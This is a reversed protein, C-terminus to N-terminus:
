ILDESPTRKARVLPNLDSFLRAKISISWRRGDMSMWSVQSLLEVCILYLRWRWKLSLFYVRSSAIRTILSCGGMSTLLSSHVVLVPRSATAWISHGPTSKSFHPLMTTRAGPLINRCWLSKPLVKSKSHICLLRLAPSTPLNNTAELTITPHNSIQCGVRLLLNTMKPSTSMTMMTAWQRIDILTLPSDQRWRRELPSSHLEGRSLHLHSQKSISLTVIMSSTTMLLYPFLILSRTLGFLM